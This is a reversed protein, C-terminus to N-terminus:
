FHFCRRFVILEKRCFRYGLGFGWKLIYKVLTIMTVIRSLVLWRRRQTLTNLGVKGEYLSTKKSEATMKKKLVKNQQFLAFCASYGLLPVSNHSPKVSDSIGSDEFNWSEDLLYSEM